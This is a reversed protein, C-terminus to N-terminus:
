TLQRRNIFDKVRKLSIYAVGSDGNSYNILYGLIYYYATVLLNSLSTLLTLILNNVNPLTSLTTVTIFFINVNLIYMFPLM